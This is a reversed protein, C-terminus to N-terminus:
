SARAMNVRSRRFLRRPTFWWHHASPGPLSRLRRDSGLGKAHGRPCRSARLFHDRSQGPRRLGRMGAFCGDRRLQPSYRSARVQTRMERLHRLYWQRSARCYSGRWGRCDQQLNDINQTVIATVKGNAVLNALAWHGRGPQARAYIDDLAFKRRWAEERMLVDSMFLDFEIPKYRLWPSNKSRFDPVGCETSIGAGTFAVIKAARDIAERLLVRAEELGSVIEALTESRWGPDPHGRRPLGREM